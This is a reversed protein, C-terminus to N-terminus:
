RTKYKKVEPFLVILAFVNVFAMIGNFIDSLAWVTLPSFAAGLASVSAFLLCFIRRHRFLHTFATEGCYYWGIVTCLAFIGLVAALFVEAYRGFVTGLATGVSLDPAACLLTLATLTCCIVTDFFVEFMSWMSQRVSDTDGSASHLLPLSGLGAENSFVGRRIGTSVAQSVTYGCIGGSVQRTGFASSFIEAFASPLESRFRFLIVACAAGYLVAALPLLVEAAAGIRKAGGSTILLIVTFVAPVTVAPDIEACNGLADSFSNVQVMGGMGLSVLVCCVAFVGALAPLGLGKSIYALPGRADDDSYAASLSNEAYVLAMGFFASVWMWLVAGAGGASLAAAVGTINGTGMATGLAMCVTRRQSLGGQPKSKRNRLLYPILRFQVGRLKVTYAAGTALLMIILANGWVLSGARQLFIEM